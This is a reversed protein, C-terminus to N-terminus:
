GRSASNTWRIHTTQSRHITFYVSPSVETSVSGTTSTSVRHDAELDPGIGGSVDAARTASDGDGWPSLPRTWDILDPTRPVQTEEM